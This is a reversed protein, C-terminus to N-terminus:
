KCNDCRVTSIIEKLEAFITGKEPKEFLASLPHYLRRAHLTIVKIMQTTILTTLTLKQLKMLPKLPAKTVNAWVCFDTRPIITTRHLQLMINANLM